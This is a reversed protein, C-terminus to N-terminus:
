LTAILTSLEQPASAFCTPREEELKSKPFAGWTVAITKCGAANGAHIDFPSDGVYICDAPDVGLLECGRLVPDPNPKHRETDTGGVVCQMFSTLGLSKLAKQAADQRKSTVIGMPIGAEQICQLAEIVGDFGKILQDHVRDNHERYVECLEEVVAPDDTYDAMQDSLPIGMTAMLREPPIDVGLVTKTAYVQSALILDYTDALTGDLDFLVASCTM